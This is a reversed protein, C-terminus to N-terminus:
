RNPLGRRFTVIRIKFDCAGTVFRVKFDSNSPVIRWDGCGQAGYGTTDVFLDEGSTVIRVDFDANATVVRVKGHLAIGKCRCDPTIPGTTFSTFLVATLVGIFLTKM